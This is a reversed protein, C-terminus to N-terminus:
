SATGKEFLGDPALKTAELVLLLKEDVLALSRVIDRGAQTLLPPLDQLADPELTIVDLVGDVALAVAREGLDLTVWRLFDPRAGERGLLAGLDVVPVTAGRIVSVGLVFGEPERLAELALPRMTESVAFLPLGVRHSGAVVM